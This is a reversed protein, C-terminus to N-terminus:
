IVVRRSIVVGYEYEHGALIVNDISTERRSSDIKMARINGKVRLYM